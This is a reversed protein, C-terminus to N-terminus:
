KPIVHSYPRRTVTSIGAAKPQGFDKQQTSLFQEKPDPSTVNYDGERFVNSKSHSMETSSLSSDQWNNDGKFSVKM